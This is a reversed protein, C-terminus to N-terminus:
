LEDDDDDIEDLNFLGNLAEQSELINPPTTQPEPEDDSQEDEDNEDSEETSEDDSDSEDDTDAVSETSEGSEASETSEGGEAPEEVENEEEPSANFHTEVDDSETEDEEDPEAEPEEPEEAPEQPVRVVDSYEVMLLDTIEKVKIALSDPNGTLEFSKAIVDLFDDNSQKATTSMFLLGLNPYQDDIFDWIEDRGQDKFKSKYAGQYEDFPARGARELANLFKFATALESANRISQYDVQPAPQAPQEDNITQEVRGRNTQVERHEPPQYGTSYVENLM